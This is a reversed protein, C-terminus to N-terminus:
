RFGLGLTHGRLGKTLLINSCAVYGHFISIGLGKLMQVVFDCPCLFFQSVGVFGLTQCTGQLFSDWLKLLVELM